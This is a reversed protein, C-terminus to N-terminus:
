IKQVYAYSFNVYHEMEGITIDYDSEILGLYLAEIDELSMGKGDVKLLFSDEM